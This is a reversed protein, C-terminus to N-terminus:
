MLTAISRAIYKWWITRTYKTYLNRILGFQWKGCKRCSSEYHLQWVGRHVFHFVPVCSGHIHTSLPMLWMDVVEETYIVCGIEYFTILIQHMKDIKLGTYTLHTFTTINQKYFYAWKDAQDKDKLKLSHLISYGQVKKNCTSLHCQAWQREPINLVGSFKQIRSGIVTLAEYKM